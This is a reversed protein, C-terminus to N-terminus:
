NGSTQSNPFFDHHSRGYVGALYGFIQFGKGLEIFSPSMNTRVISDSFVVKKLLSPKKYVVVANMIHRSALEVSLAFTGARTRGIPITPSTTHKTLADLVDGKKLNNNELQEATLAFSLSALFCEKLAEFYAEDTMIENNKAKSINKAIIFILEEQKAVAEDAIDM